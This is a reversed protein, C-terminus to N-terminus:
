LFVHMYLKNIGCYLSLQYITGLAPYIECSGATVACSADPMTWALRSQLYDPQGAGECLPVCVYRHMCIASLPLVYWVSLGVPQCRCLCVLCVSAHVFEAPVGATFVVAEQWHNLGGM